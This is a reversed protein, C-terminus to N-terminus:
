VVVGSRVYGGGERGMKPTMEGRSGEHMFVKEEQGMPRSHDSLRKCRTVSKAIHLAVRAFARSLVIWHLYANYQVLSFASTIVNIEENRKTELMNLLSRFFSLFCFFIFLAM